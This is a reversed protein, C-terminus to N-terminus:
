PHGGTKGSGDHGQVRHTGPNLVYAVEAVPCIPLGDPFINPDDLDSISSPFAGNTVYYREVAANIESKNHFCVQEKAISVSGTVRPAVIVAIIGLITVVALLEVLTFGRRRLAVVIRRAFGAGEHVAESRQLERRLLVARLLSVINM